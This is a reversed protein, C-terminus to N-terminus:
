LRTDYAGLALRNERCVREFDKVCPRPQRQQTHVDVAALGFHANTGLTWEFNDMLTWYFYGLVNVGAELAGALSGLHQMIFQRRLVEDDTAIGNETIILPLHFRAFRELVVRLGPPYVEWGTTSIPGRDSHHPLRCVRGVVAGPRWGTSRIITRTYYNLGIFDLNSGARWGPQRILWFFARNWLLERLAAALRDRKRAPNCPVILPTSHAFGVMIDQRRRHLARYAATHARALNRFVRIAKCWASKVGPPWEGEIYGKLVYVTPENITLWYQVETGLYEAVYTVYRAFLQPSDSRLWGGRRAFWSPNTFHHLTMVPELGRARLAHIVARYHAIAEASWQGESPEIRSWEISFRHANHGWAHALDFDQAYLQYHRCAEGSMYPLRGTQEDEWWDNWWNDGEV